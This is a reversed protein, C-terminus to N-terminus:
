LKNYCEFVNTTAEDSLKYKKELLVINIHSKLLHEESLLHRRFIKLYHYNKKAKKFILSKTYDIINLSKSREFGKNLKTKNIRKLNIQNVSSKSIIIESLDTYNFEKSIKKNEKEIIIEKNNMDQILNDEKKSLNVKNNNSSHNSNSNNSNSNSFKIIQEQNDNLKINKKANLNFLADKSNDINFKKKDPPRKKRISTKKNIKIINLNNKTDNINNEIESTINDKDNRNEHNNNSSENKSIKDVFFKDNYGKKSLKLINNQINYIKNDNGQIQIKNSISTIKINNNGKEALKRDKLSFFLYNTDFDIIFQNYAYNIWYFLYFIFQTIGGIESFIDFINNYRREYIQVNNQMLHYYRTITFYKEGANNAAGKRNFDFYFSNIDKSQGFISGIKTIIRLPSFHM